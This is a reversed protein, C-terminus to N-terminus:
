RLGEPGQMARFLGCPQKSRHLPEFGIDSVDERRRKFGSVDDYHVVEGAVLADRRALQDLGGAGLQAEERGVAGVEVGDLHGERLELREQSPGDFPGTWARHSAM